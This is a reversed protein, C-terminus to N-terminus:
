ASHAPARLTENKLLASSEKDLYIGANPHTRLISAPAEASVPGDFCGHIAAAKRPGPVIALIEKAKLVQKVSMSIARRPVTALSPFWGEEVQQRRCVEDLEVVIYPEETFFDAPPDNFALHGNEGIGVFAVDIPASSIAEGTRRIVEDTEREGDLLHTMTIGTKAILRDELFRCFSAPHTMPLGIYEDLHFLEVRPWEIDPMATLEELFEIQSAASAAIIRAKGREKINREIAAAAQAAAARALSKRDEHVLIHM